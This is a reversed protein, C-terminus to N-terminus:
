FHMKKIHSIPIHIDKNSKKSNSKKSLSSGWAHGYTVEITLPIVDSTNRQSELSSYLRKLWSRGVLNKRRNQISNGGLLYIDKVLQEPYKYTLTLTEQSLVPNFLGVRTLLDGFNHMDIFFNTNTELNGYDIAKRIERLTEPGFVSFIILGNARLIRKWESFVQSPNSHWHLALNSWILDISKEPLQTNALDKELFEFKSSIFKNIFKELFCSNFNQYAKKLLNSCHDIGIYKSKPYRKLLLQINNGSGCGADVLIEPKICIYKLYDIMRRAIEGYLFQASSLDGRHNFQKKVHSTNIPLITSM